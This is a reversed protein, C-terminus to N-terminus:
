SVASAGLARVGDDPVGLERRVDSLPKSMLEGWAVGFFPKAARGLRWGLTIAEMRREREDPTFLTTNLLGAALIASSLLAPFQALYFAQLGLEGAVDTGFGTVVHWLDHTEYLHASLYTLRDPSALTPIAAPDLGAERMHKAYSHGLSGEDLTALADLSLAGLRTRKELAARGSATQSFFDDMKQMVEPSAMSERLEFVKNLQNPDRVLTGWAYLAKAVNVIKM